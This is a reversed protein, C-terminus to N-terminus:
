GLLPLLRAALPSLPSAATLAAEPFSPRSPVSARPACLIIFYGRSASSLSLELFSGWCCPGSNLSLRPGRPVALPRVPLLSRPFFCPSGNMGPASDGAPPPWCPCQPGQLIATGLLCVPFGGGLGSLLRALASVARPEGPKSPCRPPASGSSESTAEALGAKM